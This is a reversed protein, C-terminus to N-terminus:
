TLRRKNLGMSDVFIDMRNETANEDFERKYGKSGECIMVKFGPDILGLRNADIGVSLGECGQNSHLIIGDM